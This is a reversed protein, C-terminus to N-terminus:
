AHHRARRSQRLLPLGLGTGGFKRTTSGDVQSFSNFLFGQRERPIGIGTDRVTFKLAASKEDQAALTVGIVVRGEATFKIANGALNIFIQRLRLADGRLRVPIEPPIHCAVELNKEAAKFALIEVAAEMMERLNFDLKELTLKQAEIKSFDLIDNILSLLSEGSSKLLQAFQSQEPTLETQLLLTTMGIVGNMPTRIEHSMNALFQSKAINAMEAKIAM